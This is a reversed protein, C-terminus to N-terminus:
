EIKAVINGFATKSINYDKETYSITIDAKFKEKRLGNNCGTLTFVHDQGSLLTENFTASCTGVEIKTFTLTKGMGNSLVLITQSPEIKNSVCAIGPEVVCKEPLFKEPSLVGFYALAGLAAIVVLVAWGYTMLFEMAAQSKLNQFLLKNRKKQKV